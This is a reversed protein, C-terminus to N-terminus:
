LLITFSTTDLINITGRIFDKSKDLPFYTEIRCQKGILTGTFYFICSFRPQKVKEDWGTFDAFSGTLGNTYKNFGITLEGYKGTAIPAQSYGTAIVFLFLLTLTYRM